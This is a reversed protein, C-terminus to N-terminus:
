AKPSEESADKGVDAHVAGSEDSFFHRVTPSAGMPNVFLKYAQADAAPRLKFDYGTQGASPDSNLLHADVLEDFNLAYRRNRRFYNAQADNIKAIADLAASENPASANATQASAPQSAAGNQSTSPSGSCGGAAAIIALSFILTKVRTM